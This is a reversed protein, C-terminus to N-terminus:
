LSAPPQTNCKIQDVQSIWNFWAQSVYLCFDVRQLFLAFDTHHVLHTHTQRVALRHRHILANFALGDRWCTTFNHINVEPYRSFLVPFVYCCWPSKERILFDHKTRRLSYSLITEPNNTLYNGQQKWRVGCFYPMKLQAHRETTRPRLRLWRFRHLM